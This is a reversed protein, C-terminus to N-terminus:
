IGMKTFSLKADWPHLPVNTGITRGTFYRMPWNKPNIRSARLMNLTNIVQPTLKDWLQLPFDRDATALSSIFVDKFTQIAHEAANIHHNHHEVLQLKCEEEMLFQKIHKTAQNDM